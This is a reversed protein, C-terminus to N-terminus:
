LAYAKNFEDLQDDLSLGEVMKMIFMRKMIYLRNALSKRM